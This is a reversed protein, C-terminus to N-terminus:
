LKKEEVVCRGSRSYVTLSTRGNTWDFFNKREQSAFTGLIELIIKEWCEAASLLFVFLCVDSTTTCCTNGRHSASLRM